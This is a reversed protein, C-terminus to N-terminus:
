PLPLALLTLILKRQAATEGSDRVGAIRARSSAVTINGLSPDRGSLFIAGSETDTKPNKLSTGYAKLLSDGDVPETALFCATGGGVLFELGPPFAKRGLLHDPLYRIDAAALQGRLRDLVPLEAPATGLSEAVLRLAEPIIRARFEEEGFANVTVFHPGHRLLGQYDEAVAGNGHPLPAAEEPSFAAFLGFAQLSSPLLYVGIELTEDPDGPRNYHVYAASLLGFRRFFEAEGNIKEWLTDSTYHEVAGARVLPALKEVPPFSDEQDVAFATGAQLFLLAAAAATRLM